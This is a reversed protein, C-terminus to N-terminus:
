RPGEGSSVFRVRLDEAGDVFRVRFDEGGTVYRWRGPSNAGSEVVRVRLDEAGDVIRVRVVNNGGWDVIRIRGFLVNALAKRESDGAGFVLVALSCLALAVLLIKKM